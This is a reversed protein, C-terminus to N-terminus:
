AGPDSAELLALLTDNCPTAIGHARARRVVAGTLADYELPRGARRDNLMSSGTEPPYSAWLAMLEDAFSPPM